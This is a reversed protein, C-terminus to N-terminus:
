EAAQPANRSTVEASAQGMPEANSGLRKANKMNTSRTMECMNSVVDPM